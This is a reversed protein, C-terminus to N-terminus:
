MTKLKTGKVCLKRDVAPRLVKGDMKWRQQYIRNSCEALRIEDGEEVDGDVELCYNQCKKEGQWRFKEDCFLQLSPRLIM